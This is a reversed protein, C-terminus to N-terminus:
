SYYRQRYQKAQSNDNGYTSCRLASPPLNAVRHRGNRHRSDGATSYSNWAHRASANAHVLGTHLRAIADVFVLRVNAPASRAMVAGQALLGYILLVTGANLGTWLLLKNIGSTLKGIPVSGELVLSKVAM